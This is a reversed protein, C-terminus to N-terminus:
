RFRLLPIVQFLETSCSNLKQCTGDGSESFYRLAPNNSVNAVSFGPHAQGQM